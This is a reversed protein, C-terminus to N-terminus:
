YSFFYWYEIYNVSNITRHYNKPTSFNLLRQILVFTCRGIDSKPNYGIFHCEYVTFSSVNMRQTVCPNPSVYLLPLLSDVVVFFYM